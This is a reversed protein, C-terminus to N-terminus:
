WVLSLPREALLEAKLFAFVCLQTEAFTAAQVTGLCDAGFFFIVSLWCAWVQTLFWSFNPNFGSFGSAM